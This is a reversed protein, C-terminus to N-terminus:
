CYGSGQLATAPLWGLTQCVKCPYFGLMRGEGTCEWCIEKRMPRGFQLDKLSCKHIAALRFGSAAALTLISKEAAMIDTSQVAVRDDDRKPNAFVYTKIVEM